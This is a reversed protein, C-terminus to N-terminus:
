EGIPEDSAYIAIDGNHYIRSFNAEYKRYVSRELDTSEPDISKSDTALFAYHPGDRDRDKAFPSFVPTETEIFRESYSETEEITYTFEYYGQLLLVYNPKGPRTQELTIVRRDVNRTSLWEAARVDNDNYVNWDANEDNDTIAIAHAPVTGPLVLFAVGSSFVLYVGLFVAVVTAPEIRYDSVRSVVANVGDFVFKFGVVCYPAVVVLVLQLMRDIGLGLPLISGVVIMSFTSAALLSYRALGQDFNYNKQPWRDLIAVAYLIFQRLIGLAMSGVLVASLSLYVRWGVTTPLTALFGAGSRDPPDTVREGVSFLEILGREVIFATVIGGGVFLYWGVFLTFLFLIFTVNLPFEERDSTWRELPVQGVVIVALFPIFLLSTAYHSCVLGVAGLVMLIKSNRRSLDLTFAAVFITVLFIEALYQKHAINKFFGYYFMFVFPALVAIRREFVEKSMKYIGVPVVSFVLPMLTKLVWSISLGSLRAYVPTVVTYTAMTNVKNLFGIEWWGLELVRRAILAELHIDWGWIYQSVLVTSSLLALSVSWITLVTTLQNDQYRLLLFPVAAAILVFAVNIVIIDYYNLFLATGVVSLVPLLIIVTL